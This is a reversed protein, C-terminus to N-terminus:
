DRVIGIRPDRVEVCQDAADLLLMGGEALRAPGREGSDELCTGGLKASAQRAWAPLLDPDLHSAEHGRQAVGMRPEDQRGWREERDVEEAVTLSPADSSPERSTEVPPM